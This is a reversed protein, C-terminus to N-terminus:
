KHRKYEKTENINTMKSMGYIFRSETDILLGSDTSFIRCADEM